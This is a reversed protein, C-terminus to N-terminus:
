LSETVTRRVIENEKKKTTMTLAPSTNRRSHSSLRQQLHQILNKRPMARRIKKRLDKLAAQGKWEILRFALQVILIRKFM